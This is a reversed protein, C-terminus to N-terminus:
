YLGNKNLIMSQIVSCTPCYNVHALSYTVYCVNCMVLRDSPIKIRLKLQREHGMVCDTNCFINYINLIDMVYM